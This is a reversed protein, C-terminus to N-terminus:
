AEAFARMYKLNRPSFGQMDPFAQKLDFSLRDIVKAGWGESSQRTLISLGIHWYLMVLAANASLVAKLRASQVQAKISELLGAYSHPMELLSSAAPITVDAKEKGMRKRQESM